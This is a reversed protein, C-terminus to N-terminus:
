FDSKLLRARPKIGVNGFPDPQEVHIYDRTKLVLTEFFMRSAEKRTKRALITDLQLGTRGHQAEKQFLVQLYNAVARTRTSWGSNDLIQPGESNPMCNADEQVNEDDDDDDFNLFDTDHELIEAESDQTVCLLYNLSEHTQYDSDIATNDMFIESEVFQQEQNVVELFVGNETGFDKELNSSEINLDEREQSQLDFELFEANNVTVNEADLDRGVLNGSQIDLDKRENDLLLSRDDFRMDTEPLEDKYVGVPNLSGIDVDVRQELPQGGDDFSKDSEPFDVKNLTREEVTISEGNFASSSPQANILPIAEDSVHIPEKRCEMDMETRIESENQLANGSRDFSDIVGSQSSTCVAPQVANEDEAVLQAGIGEFSTGESVSLKIPSGIMKLTVSQDKSEEDQVLKIERLDFPQRHLSNLEASIGTFISEIFIESGLFQKQLVWIEPHTSPAKKRVRRIDEINLLQQRILDGHLVMSDDVLVKRKNAVSRTNRRRKSSTLESAPPTSKVKLVTSQRGVLISSLLDDDGPVFDAAKKSQTPESFDVSKLSQLTMTSEIFSRKRGSIKSETANQDEQLLLDREPTSGVCLENSQSVPANPLSLMKEPSPLESATSNNIEQLEVNKSIDSQRNLNNDLAAANFLQEENLNLDTICKNKFWKKKLFRMERVCRKCMFCFLWDGNKRKVEQEKAVFVNTADEVSLELVVGFEKCPLNLSSMTNDVEANEENSHLNCPQLLPKSGNLMDVRADIFDEKEPLSDILHKGEADIVPETLSKDAFSPSESVSCLGNASPKEHCPDSGNSSIIPEDLGIDAAERSVALSETKSCTENEPAQIVQLSGSLNAINPSNILETPETIPKEIKQNDLDCINDQLVDQDINDEVNTSASVGIDIDQSTLETPNHDEEMYDDCILAEENSPLNSGEMLGPTSPAEIAESEEHMEEDLEEGKQTSSSELSTKSDVCSNLFVGHGSSTGKNLLLEEDLDLGIQSADGDGFREDFGFQSTTYVVGDMTDQLTIQEKTSVHHDVFNGQFLEIDPLEFDDLDFTEPLTISHYPAKSEEPPLDVATSRFAQKVKLLAESCDDFLYNVKKNYIRVVGLLLHSSLRLAIPVDPSLISDVSVGIDTDAVQNKRLKRELHAAIWITGLPGKKALIFQSYFM